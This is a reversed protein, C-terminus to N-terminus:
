CKCSCCNASNIHGCAVHWNGEAQESTVDTADPNTVFRSSKLRGWTSRTRVFVHTTIVAEGTCLSSENTLSLSVHLDAPNRVADIYYWANINTETCKGKHEILVPCDSIKFGFQPAIVCLVPKSRFSENVYTRSCSVFCKLASLEQDAAHVNAHRLEDKLSELVTWFVSYLVSGTKCLAAHLIVLPSRPSNSYIWPFM